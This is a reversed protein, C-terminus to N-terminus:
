ANITRRPHPAQPVNCYCGYNIQGGRDVWQSLERGALSVEPRGKLVPVNAFGCTLAQSTSVCPLQRDQQGQFWAVWMYFSELWDVPLYSTCLRSDQDDLQHGVVLCSHSGEPLRGPSRSYLKRPLILLLSDMQPWGM